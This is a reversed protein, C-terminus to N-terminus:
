FHVTCFQRMALEWSSHQFYVTPRCWFRFCVRSQLRVALNKQSTLCGLSHRDRFTDVSQSQQFCKNKPGSCLCGLINRNVAQRTLTDMCGYSVLLGTLWVHQCQKYGAEMTLTKGNSGAHSEARTTIAPDSLSHTSGTRETGYTPKGGRHCINELALCCYVLLAILSYDRSYICPFHSSCVMHPECGSCTTGILIAHM